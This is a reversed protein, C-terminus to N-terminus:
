GDSAPEGEELGLVRQVVPWSALRAFGVLDIEEARVQSSLGGAELAEAAESPSL